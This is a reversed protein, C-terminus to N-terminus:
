FCHHCYNALKEYEINVKVEDENDFPIIIKFILPKFGNFSVRGFGSNEDVKTLKGIDNGVVRITAEAWYQVPLDRAKEWFSIESPYSNEVMTGM